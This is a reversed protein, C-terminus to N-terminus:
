PIFSTLSNIVIRDNFSCLHFPFQGYRAVSFNELSYTNCTLILNLNFNNLKPHNRIEKTM